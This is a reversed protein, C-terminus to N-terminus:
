RCAVRPKGPATQQLAKGFLTYSEARSVEVPIFEGQETFDEAPFVVVNNQGTRGTFQPNEETSKPSHGEVFVRYTRGVHRQNRRHANQEYIELLQSHRRSIEPELVKDDYDAAPTGSRPSFKFIYAKDFKVKKFLDVTQNFDQETEGPFGVIADTTLAVDTQLGRLREVLQLYNERTYNRNMRELVRNSGAQVPLHLHPALHELQDFCDILKPSTDAPHPSTFRLRYDGEIKNLRRLLSVFDEATESKGGYSNVTQGLLTIERYGAEVLQQVEAEIDEPSRCVERGRTHPVICYTCFKDCGVMISVWGQGLQNRSRDRPTRASVLEAEEGTALVQKDEIRVQQLYEPLNTFDRPGIVIDLNPFRKLLARGEKQAVCGTLGVIKQPHNQKSKLFEGLYSYAKEEAHERVACTNLLVVDASGPAPAPSYGEEELYGTMAESDAKNMQCGFTIM